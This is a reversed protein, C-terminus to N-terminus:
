RRSPSWSATIRSCTQPWTRWDGACWGMCQKAHSMGRGFSEARCSSNSNLTPRAGRAKGGILGDPGDTNFAITWDRMTQPGFAALAAAESRAGGAYIASLALLRRIQGPDRSGKASGHLAEADFDQRLPVSASM